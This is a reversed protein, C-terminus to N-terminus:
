RAETPSAAEEPADKLLPAFVYGLAEDESFETEDPDFVAYWGNKLFGAKVREGIQLKGVIKSAKSPKERINARSVAYKLKVGESPEEVPKLRSAHVYGLANEESLDTEDPNFVAYWEDQLFAAKVRQGGNLKGVVKSEKTRAERIKTPSLAYMLQGTEEQPPEEQTIRPEQSVEAKQSACSAFYLAAWIVSVLLTAKLPYNRM